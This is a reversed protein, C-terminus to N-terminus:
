ELFYEFGFDYEELERDLEEFYECFFDIGLDLTEEEFDFYLDLELGDVGETLGDFFDYVLGLELGEFGFYM